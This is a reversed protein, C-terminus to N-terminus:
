SLGLQRWSWIWILLVFGAGTEIKSIMKLSLSRSRAFKITRVSTRDRLAIASFSINMGVGM